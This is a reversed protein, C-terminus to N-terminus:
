GRREMLSDLFEWHAKHREAIREAEEKSVAAGIPQGQGCWCFVAWPRALMREDFRVEIKHEM